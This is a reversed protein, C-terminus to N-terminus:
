TSAAFGTLAKGIILTPIEETGEYTLVSELNNAHRLVPYELTIGNAALISRCTRAIGLAKRVSPLKFGALPRGFRKPRRLLRHRFRSLRPRTIEPATFGLTGSPVLFGGIGDETRAWVVAVGPSPDTETLGFCGVVEGAAMPPLWHEKQEKQEESGCAHIAYMALSSQASVLSRLGSDIAELELCALGYSVANTGPRGLGALGM